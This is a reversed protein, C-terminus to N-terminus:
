PALPFWLRITVLHCVSTLCASLLTSQLGEIGVWPGRSDGAFALEPYFM